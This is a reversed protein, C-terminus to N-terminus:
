RTRRTASFRTAADNWSTIIGNLDKSVIVDDSSEVIAALEALHKASDRLERETKRLETVDRITGLIRGRSGDTEPQLDGNVEICRPTGDPCYILGEFHFPKDRQLTDEMAQRFADRYDPHVVENIFAAGNVPGQERTRCFIEYMRDNEWTGNDNATDWVFVGLKAVKTALQVGVRPAVVVGRGLAAREYWSNM